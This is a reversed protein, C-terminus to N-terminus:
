RLAGKLAQTGKTRLWWQMFQPMFERNRGGQYNDLRYAITKAGKFYDGMRMGLHLEGPVKPYLDVTIAGLRTKLANFKETPTGKPDFYQAYFGGTKNGSYMATSGRQGPREWSVTPNGFTTLPNGINSLYRKLYGSKLYFHDNKSVGLKKWKTKVYDPALPKFKPQALTIGPLTPAGSSDIIGSSSALYSFMRRQLKVAANDVKTLTRKVSQNVLKVVASAITDAVDDFTKVAM